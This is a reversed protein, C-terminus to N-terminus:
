GCASDHPFGARNLEWNSQASFQGNIILVIGNLDHHGYFLFPKAATKSLHFLIQLDRVLESACLASLPNILLM